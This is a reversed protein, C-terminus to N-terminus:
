LTGVLDVIQHSSIDQNLVQSLKQWGETSMNCLAAQTADQWLSMVYNTEIDTYSHLVRMLYHNNYLEVCIRVIHLACTFVRINASLFARLGVYTICEHYETQNTYKPEFQKTLLEINTVILNFAAGLTSHPHTPTYVHTNECM